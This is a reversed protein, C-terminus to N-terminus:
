ETPEKLGRQYQYHPQGKVSVFIVERMKKIAIAFNLILSLTLGLKLGQFSWSPVM